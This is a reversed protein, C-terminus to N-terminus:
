PAPPQRLELEAIIPLHDSWPVRVVQYGLVKWHPSAFIYDLRRRFSPLTPQKEKGQELACDTLLPSVTVVPSNFDGLLLLPSKKGQEAWEHLLQLQGHRIRASLSCHTNGVLITMEQWQLAVEQLSRKERKAPLSLTRTHVIPHRTLLANGYAGGGLSITPSFDMAYQLEHALYDAQNGFKSNQHVEQLCIVDAQIDHLTEAMQTLRKRWFLDRGSHINYSVIRIM